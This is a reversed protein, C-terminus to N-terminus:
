KVRIVTFPSLSLGHMFLKLIATLQTYKFEKPIQLGYKQRKKSVSPSGSRGAEVGAVTIMLTVSM